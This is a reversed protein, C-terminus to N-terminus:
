DFVTFNHVALLSKFQRTAVAVCASNRNGGTHQYPFPPPIVVVFNSAPVAAGKRLGVLTKVHEKTETDLMHKLGHGVTDLTKMQFIDAKM